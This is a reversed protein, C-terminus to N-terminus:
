EVHVYSMKSIVFFGVAGVHIKLTYVLCIAALKTVSVPVCVSRNLYVKHMCWLMAIIDQM